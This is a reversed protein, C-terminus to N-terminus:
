IASGNWRKQLHDINCLQVMLFPKSSLMGDTNLHVYGNSKQLQQYICSFTCSSSSTSQKGFMEQFREQKSHINACWCSATSCWAYYPLMFPWNLQHRSYNKGWYLRLIWSFWEKASFFSINQTKWNPRLLFILDSTWITETVQMYVYLFYDGTRSCIM